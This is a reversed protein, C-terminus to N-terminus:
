SLTVKTQASYGNYTGIVVFEGGASGKTIAGTSANISGVTSASSTSWTTKSTVDEGGIYLAKAQSKTATVTLPVDITVGSLKGEFASVVSSAVYFVITVESEIVQGAASVGGLGPREVKYNFSYQTYIEGDVPSEDAYPAAYRRNVYTPFRLNEVLWKGTAFEEVNKTVTITTAVVSEDSVKVIEPKEPVMWSEALTITVKTSSVEVTFPVGDMTVLKLAAALNKAADAATTSGAFEVMIPKGFESWAALAYDSLSKSPTAIFMTFRYSDATLAPMTIEIKGVTGAVGVAKYVKKDVIKSLEYNGARKVALQGSVNMLASASNIITEKIYNFM